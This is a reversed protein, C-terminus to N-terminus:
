DAETHDDSSNPGMEVKIWALSRRVSRDITRKSVGAQSAIQENTLGGFFRLELVRAGREDLDRLKTLAEDLAILDVPPTGDASEIWTISEQQAGGGRKRARKSRAHDRLIQRMAISAVACFHERSQWAGGAGRVIKLYAEHVLATPQLTHNRAQARFHFGAAARLQEYVLDLLQGSAREDGSQALWILRTADAPLGSANPDQNSDANDM